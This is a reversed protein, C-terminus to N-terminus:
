PNLDKTLKQPNGPAPCHLFSQLFLVRSYMFKSTHKDRNRLLMRLTKQVSSDKLQSKNQSLQPSYPLLHLINYSFHTPKLSPFSHNLFFFHPFLLSAIGLLCYIVAELEVEPAM